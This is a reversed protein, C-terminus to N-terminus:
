SNNQFDTNLWICNAKYSTTGVIDSSKNLFELQQKTAEKPFELYLIM